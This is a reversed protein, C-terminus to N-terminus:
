EGWLPRPYVGKEALAELAKVVGPRDERYTVGFWEGSSQLVTVRAEDRSILEDLLTPIYYEAKPDDGNRKLFAELGQGVEPFVSPTFGFMNMSVTTDPALNLTEGADSESRIADDRRYINKHEVIRRLAGKSDTECVARSVSGNPSLTNEVRFGVMAYEHEDVERHALWEGLLTYAERGYFDDANIVAFPEEVVTRAAWVAHATGWPKKRGSPDIGSLPLDDMEQFAYHVDINSEFRAGVVRRFDDEIDRRIVFVVKGFGSQLADYVSYDLIAEGDPGVGDIQKIGGYRSGMGAALVVLAPKM